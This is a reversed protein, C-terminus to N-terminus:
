FSNQVHKLGERKALNSLDNSKIFNVVSQPNTKSYERLAWGIAKQIFFEDIHQLQKITLYLLKEDTNEKYKLQFLIMTRKLWINNSQLWKGGHKKILHPFNQFLTGVLHSAIADVTDWWSKTTILYELLSIHDEQLYKKNRILYDVAIYQYEREQKGWLMKITLEIENNFNLDRIFNKSLQRRAQSKLGLFSFKNRMYSEMQIANDENRNEELISQLSILQKNKM